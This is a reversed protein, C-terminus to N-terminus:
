EKIIRAVSRNGNADHLALAYIGAPLASIDFAQKASSIYFAGVNQGMADTLQATSGAAGDITLSAATPSLYVKFGGAVATEPIGTANGCMVANLRVWISDNSYNPVEIGAGSYMPEGMRILVLGKSPVINMLQDDKGLGAIMDAPAHAELFGNFLLQPGPLRYTSKGNLWFLYGYAPNIGQSTSTMANFYATDHMIATGNWMGHAQILLAFRAFSRATSIYLSDYPNGATRFAGTIGTIANLNANKFVNINQRTAAQLVWRLMSYPANHYAWRTGPPALYVLCSDTTCPNDQTIGGYANNFGTTMTLQHVVKIAREQTSTASSFGLGLYKPLSDNINLYGQEQALGTLFAMMTKGASAWYWLSDKTFTGYYKEVAIKGDKLIIFAKAHTAGVYNVLSDLKDHVLRAVSALSYGLYRRRSASLISKPSRSKRLLPIIFSHPCFSAENFNEQVDSVHTQKM